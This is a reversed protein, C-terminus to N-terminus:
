KMFFPMTYDYPFWSLFILNQDVSRSLLVSLIFFLCTAGATIWAAIFIKKWEGLNSEILKIQNVNKPQFIDSNIEEILEWLVQQNIIIKYGKVLGVIETPVIYILSVLATLDTIVFYFEIIQFLINTIPFFTLFVFAYCTYINLKYCKTKDPWLGVCRLMSLCVRITSLWDFRKM